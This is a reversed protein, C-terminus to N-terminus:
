RTADPSAPIKGTAPPEAVNKEAADLRSRDSKAAVEATTTEDISSGESEVSATQKSATEIALLCNAKFISVSKAANNIFRDVEDPRPGDTAHARVLPAFDSGKMMLYHEREDASKSKKFMDGALIGVFGLLLRGAAMCTLTPRSKTTLNGATDVSAHVATNLAFTEQVIDITEGRLVFNGVM